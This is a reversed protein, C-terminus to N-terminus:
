STKPELAAAAKEHSRNMASILDSKLIDFPRNVAASRGIIVYDFGPLEM